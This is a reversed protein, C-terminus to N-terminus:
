SKCGHQEEGKIVYEVFAFIAQEGQQAAHQDTSEEYTIAVAFNLNKPPTTGQLLAIPGSIPSRRCGGPAPRADEPSAAATM